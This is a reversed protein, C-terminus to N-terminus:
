RTTELYVSRNNAPTVRGPFKGMEEASIADVVGMADRKIDMSRRLSGKIGTVVVEEMVNGDTGTSDAALVPMVNGAMALAVSSCLIKRKFVM